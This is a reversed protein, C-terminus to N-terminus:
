WNWGVGISLRQDDKQTGAAVIAEHTIQYGISLSVPGKLRGTLSAKFELRNNASKGLDHLYLLRETGRWIPAGRADKAMTADANQLVGVVASTGDAAPVNKADEVAGGVGVVSLNSTKSQVVRVGLGALEEFHHDIKQVSNRAYAPQIVIFTRPTLTRSAFFSASDSDAITQSQNIAPITVKGYVTQALLTYSWEPGIRAVSGDLSEMTQKTVGAQWSASFTIGGHWQVPPVAPTAGAPPAAQARAASATALCLFAAILLVTRCRVFSMSPM